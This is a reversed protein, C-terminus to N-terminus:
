RHLSLERLFKLADLTPEMTKAGEDTILNSSLWLVNLYPAFRDRMFANALVEIGKDKLKNHDLHLRLLNKGAELHAIQVILKMSRESNDEGVEPNENIEISTIGSDRHWEGDELSVDISMSEIQSAAKKLHTENMDSKESPSTVANSESNTELSKKDQPAERVGALAAEMLLQLALVGLGMNSLVLVYDKSSAQTSDKRAHHGLGGGPSLVLRHSERFNEFAVGVKQNCCRAVFQAFFAADRAFDKLLRPNAASAGTRFSVESVQGAALMRLPLKSQYKKADDWSLELSNPSVCLAGFIRAEWASFKCDETAGGRQLAIPETAKELSLKSAPQNEDDTRAQHRKVNRSHLSITADSYFSALPRVEGTVDDERFRPVTEEACLL